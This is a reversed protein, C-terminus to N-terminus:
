ISTYMLVIDYVCAIIVIIRLLDNILYVNTFFVAVHSQLHM